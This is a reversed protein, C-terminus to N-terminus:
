SQLLELLKVRAPRPECASECAKSAANFSTRFAFRSECDFIAVRVFTASFQM